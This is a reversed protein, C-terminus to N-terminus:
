EAKKPQPAAAPELTTASAGAALSLCGIIALATPFPLLASLPPALSAGLKGFMSGCSLGATRMRTPYLETSLVYISTFSGSAASKGLLAVLTAAGGVLAAAGEGAGDTGGVSAGLQSIFALLLLLSGTAGLFRTVTPQAGIEDCSKSALKAGPLDAVALLIFNLLVADSMSGASFALAYFGVNFALHLLGFTLTTKLLGDAAFLDGWSGEGEAPVNCAAADELEVDSSAFLTAVDATSGLKSAKPTDDAVM